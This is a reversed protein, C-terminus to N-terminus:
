ALVCWKPRELHEFPPPSLRAGYDATYLFSEALSAITVAGSLASLCGAHCSACDPDGGITKAPDSSADKGDATKHQHDHHGFHKAAAGNEHQCYTAAVAWSFQLPIFMLMFIALLKRM